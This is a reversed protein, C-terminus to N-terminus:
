ASKSTANQGLFSVFEGYKQMLEQYLKQQQTADKEKMVEIMKPKYWRLLELYGNAETPTQAKVYGKSLKNFIKDMDKWRYYAKLDVTSALKAMSQMGGYSDDGEEISDIKNKIADNEEKFHDYDSNVEDSFMSEMRSKITTIAKKKQGALRKSNDSVWYLLPTGKMVKYRAYREAVQEPTFNKADKATCDLEEFYVKDLQSQPVQAIRAILVTIEHMM